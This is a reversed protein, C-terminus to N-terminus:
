NLLEVSDCFRRVFYFECFEFLFIKWVANCERLYHSLGSMDITSYDELAEDIPAGPIGFRGCPGECSLEGDASVLWHM